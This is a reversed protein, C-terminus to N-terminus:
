GFIYMLISLSLVSFLTTFTIISSMTDHDGGLQRSLIYASTACPLCSFLIGIAKAIGSIAMVWLLVSTIIPTVVLKLLSATTVLKMNQPHINLKLSSGVILIGITLASNSLNEITKAIGKNLDIQLYNFLFATISALVFPNTGITRLMVFLGRQKSSSGNKQPVYHVFCMVSTINTLVIMYPSIVSIVSLGESGFLASGLAFFIYNNYRTSGQFFSTFQIKEYHEKKQYYIAIMVMILHSAVLALLLRIFDWSNLDLKYVNIFLVAPFLLYFSLKELGRWFDESVIWRRKIFAGIFAILFIPLVNCFINYM